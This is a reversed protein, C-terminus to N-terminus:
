LQMRDNAEAVLRAVLPSVHSRSKETLSRPMGSKLGTLMQTTQQQVQFPNQRCRITLILRIRQANYSANQSQKRCQFTMSCNTYSAVPETEVYYKLM